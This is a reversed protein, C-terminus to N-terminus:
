VPDPAPPPLRRRRLILFVGYLVLLAWGALYLYLGTYLPRPRFTFEVTQEGAPVVVGRFTHNTLLVEAPEGGIRAEWGAYMNDALVLLAPRNARTRVVVRDPEHAVMEVAGDLPGDPLGLPAPAHVYATERPDWAGSRMAELAGTAGAVAVANPVLYARPLANLNEYVIGARGRYAERLWPEDLEAAILLYRVNAADLFGRNELFNAWTRPILGEGAGVYENWRQLPNGHEGGALEIGFHMLFSDDRGRYPAGPFNWVRAPRPQQMLFAAVDDPAHLEETPPATQFFRQGIVWLDAVTVLSLALAAGVATM